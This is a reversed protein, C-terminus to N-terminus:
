TTLEAFYTPHCASCCGFRTLIDVHRECVAHARFTRTPCGPERCARTQENQQHPEDRTTDQDHM